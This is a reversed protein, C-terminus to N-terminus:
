AETTSPTAPLAIAAGRDHHFFIHPREPQVVARRM